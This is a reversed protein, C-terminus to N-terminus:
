MFSNNTKVATYQEITQFCELNDICEGSSPCLISETQLKTFSVNIVYGTVYTCLHRYLTKATTTWDSLWTQCKTVGHVVVHWAERDKVMEQLKSLSIYMSGTIGDLWRLRPREKGRRGEFKRLMLTRELSNAGWTLHGFYQLKLRLILGELWDKWSVQQSQSWEGWLFSICMAKLLMFGKGMFCRRWSHAARRSRSSASSFLSSCSLASCRSVQAAWPLTQNQQPNVPKIEKCDLSSDPTEKLVVTPLCWNEPVWGEKHDLDWM